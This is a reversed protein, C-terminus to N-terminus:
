AANPEAEAHADAPSAPVVVAVLAGVSIVM